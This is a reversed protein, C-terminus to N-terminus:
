APLGFFIFFLQVIFPTNRILEVYTGVVWRLWPAGYARAWACAVGVVMGIVTAIATLGLTWAVGKALLRWDVLIAWFDFTM